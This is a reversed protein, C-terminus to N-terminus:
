ENAYELKRKVGYRHGGIVNALNSITVFAEKDVTDVIERVKSIEMRTVVVYIIKAEHGSYGKEAILYTVSRGLNDMLCRAMEETEKSVIMVARSEDLGEVVVDILKSAFFYTIASYMAEELGFVFACASFVFVNILMLMNGVSFNTFKSVWLSFMETGDLAGGFRLIIGIGIGLLLGGFIIALFRDQTIEKIHEFYILFVSFVTIGYFCRLIFKHGGHKYGFWLFPINLLFTWVGNPVPTLKGVMLAIGVVGGDIVGNPVLFLELAVAAIFAGVTIAFFRMFMKVAAIHKEKKDSGAEALKKRTEIHEKQIL